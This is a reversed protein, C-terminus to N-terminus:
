AGRRRVEDRVARVVAPLRDLILNRVLFNPYHATQVDLTYILLTEHPRRARVAWGGRNVALEGEGKEDWTITYRGQDPEAHETVHSDFPWDGWLRSHAVGAVHVKGAGERTGSLSAVYPLFEAQHDYDTIVAWVAEAPADIAVACRVSTQGAADRYLQTVVDDTATAPDREAADAWTGRVFLWAFVALLLVVLVAPIVIRKKVRRPAATSATGTM